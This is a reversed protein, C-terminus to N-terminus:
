GFHNVFSSCLLEDCLQCNNCHVIVPKYSASFSYTHTSHNLLTPLTYTCALTAEKFSTISKATPTSTPLEHWWLPVSLTFLTSHQQKKQLLLSLSYKGWRSLVLLGSTIPTYMQPQLYLSPATSKRKIRTM